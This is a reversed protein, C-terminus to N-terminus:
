GGLQGWYREELRATVERQAATRGAVMEPSLDLVGLAEEASRVALWPVHFLAKEEDSLPEEMGERVQWNLDNEMEYAGLVTVWAEQDLLAALVTRHQAWADALPQKDPQWPSRERMAHRIALDITVLEALVLRAAPRLEREDREQKALKEDHRRRWDLYYSGAFALVVGVVVGVLPGVSSWTSFVLM